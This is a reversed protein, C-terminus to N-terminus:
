KKGHRIYGDTHHRHLYAALAAAGGLVPLAKGYMGQRVPSKDIWHNIASGTLAGLGAGAATQLSAIGLRKLRDKTIFPGGPGEGAEEAIKELEDFFSANIM